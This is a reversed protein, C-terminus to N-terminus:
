EGAEIRAELNEVAWDPVVYGLGRLELLKALAEDTSLNGWGEGAHPLDRRGSTHIVYGVADQYAYIDCEFDLDSWRCLAM